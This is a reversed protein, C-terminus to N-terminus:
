YRVRLEIGVQRPYDQTFTQLGGVPTQSYIAGDEDLLNKGFLFIGFRDNEIGVRARLLDRSDGQADTGFQGLQPEIHSYGAFIRGMWAGGVNWSYDGSLALTWDDPVFPLRDGEEVGTTAALSPDIDTWEATNWNGTM